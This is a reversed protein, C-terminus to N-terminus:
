HQIQLIATFQTVDVGTLDLKAEGASKVSVLNVRSGTGNITRSKVTIDGAVVSFSKGAEVNLPKRQIVLGTNPDFTNSGAFSVPAPAKLFGFASVPAATLVDGGGLSTNFKGGDALKLYNATSVAFSGKVDLQADKGFLVGAPNMFFLNADGMM